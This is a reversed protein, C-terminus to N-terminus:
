YVWLFELQIKWPTDLSSWEYFVDELIITLKIINWKKDPKLKIFALSFGKLENHNYSKGDKIREQKSLKYWTKDDIAKRLKDINTILLSFDSFWDDYWVVTEEKSEEIIGMIINKFEEEKNVIWKNTM